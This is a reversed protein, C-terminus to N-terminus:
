TVLRYLAHWKKYTGRQLLLIVPKFINPVRGQGKL